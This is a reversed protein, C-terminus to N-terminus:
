TQHDLHSSHYAPTSSQQLTTACQSANATKTACYRALLVRAVSRALVLSNNHQYAYAQKGNYVPTTMLQPQSSSTMRTSINECPHTKTQKKAASRKYPCNDNMSAGPMAAVRDGREAGKTTQCIHVQVTLPNVRKCKTAGNAAPQVRFKHVQIQRV